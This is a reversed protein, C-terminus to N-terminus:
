SPVGSPRPGTGDWYVAHGSDVLHDNVNLDGLFITALYRGYKEQDDEETVIRVEQGIPLLDRLWYRAANGAPTGLEPAQIGTLRFREWRKWIGFGLDVDLRVTDGDHIPHVRKRLPPIVAAYEYM